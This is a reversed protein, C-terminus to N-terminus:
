HVVLVVSSQPQQQLQQAILLGNRTPRTLGDLEHYEGTQLLKPSPGDASDDCHYDHSTQGDLNTFDAALAVLM